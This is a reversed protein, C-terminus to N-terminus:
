YRYGLKYVCQWRNVFKFVFILPITDTKDHGEVTTPDSMLHRSGLRGGQRRMESKSGVPDTCLLHSRHRRSFSVPSLQSVQPRQRTVPLKYVIGRGNGDGNQEQRVKPPLSHSFLTPVSRLSVPDMTVSNEVNNPPPQTTEPFVPNRYSSFSKSPYLSWMCVFLPFSLCPPHPGM